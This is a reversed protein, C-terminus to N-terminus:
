DEDRPFRGYVVTNSNEPSFVINTDADHDGDTDSESDEDYWDLDLDTWSEPRALSVVKGANKTVRDTYSPDPRHWWASESCFPGVSEQESHLYQVNDGAASSVTVEQIRLHPEAMAQLKTYLMIGIIQDWPEEPLTVTRIGLAQLKKVTDLDDGAILCSDEMVRFLWHKIRNLAINHNGPEESNTMFALDVTYFNVQFRGDSYFSAGVTFRKKLRVNM